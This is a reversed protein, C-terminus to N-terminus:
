RVLYQTIDVVTEDKFYISWGFPYMWAETANGKVTPGSDAARAEGDGGRRDTRSLPPGLLILSRSWPRGSRSRASSASRRSTWALQRGRSARAPVARHAHEIQNDWHRREDFNPERGNAILGM